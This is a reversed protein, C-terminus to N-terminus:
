NAVAVEEERWQKAVEATRRREMASFETLLQGWAAIIRRTLLRKNAIEFRDFREASQVEEFRILLDFLPQGKPDTKVDWEWSKSEAWEGLIDRIWDDARVVLSRWSENTNISAPIKSTEFM